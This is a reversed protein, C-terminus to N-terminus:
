FAGHKNHQLLYLLHHLLFSLHVCLQSVQKPGGRSSVLKHLRLAVVPSVKLKGGNFANLNLLLERHTITKHQWSQLGM